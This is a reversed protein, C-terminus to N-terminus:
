ASTVLLHLGLLLAPGRLPASVRLEDLYESLPLVDGASAWCFDRPRIQGWGCDFRARSLAAPPLCWCPHHDEASAHCVPADLALAARSHLHQATHAAVDRCFLQLARGM